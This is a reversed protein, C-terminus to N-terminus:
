VPPAILKMILYDRIAFLSIGVILCISSITSNKPTFLPTFQSWYHTNEVETGDYPTMTAWLVAVRAGNTM